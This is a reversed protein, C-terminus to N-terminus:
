KQRIEIRLIEGMQSMDVNSAMRVALKGVEERLKGRLDEQAKDIYEEGLLVVREELSKRIAREFGAAFDNHITAM